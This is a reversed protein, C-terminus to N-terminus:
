PDSLHYLQYYPSQLPSQQALTFTSSSPSSDQLELLTTIGKKTVAEGKGAKKGAGAEATRAKGATVAGVGGSM